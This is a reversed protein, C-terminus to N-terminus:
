AIATSTHPGHPATVMTDAVPYRLGRNQVHIDADELGFAAMLRTVHRRSSTWDM